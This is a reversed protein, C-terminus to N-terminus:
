GSLGWEKMYETKLDSTTFWSTGLAAENTLTLTQAIQPTFARNPLEGPAPKQGNLARLVQDFLQWGDWINSAGPDGVVPNGQELEQLGPLTANYTVVKVRSTAGASRISPLALPLEADFLVALLNVSPDSIATTTAPGVGTSWSSEPVDTSTVTCTGCLKKLEATFGSYEPASNTQDSSTIFVAHVTGLKAVAIQAMMQGADYYSASANGFVGAPEDGSPYGTDVDGGIVVPIHSAAAQAIAAHLAEANIGEIVIAAAGQSVAQSIQRNAVVSSAQADEGFVKMGFISAASKLGDEVQIVFPYQLGVAIFYITKGRLDATAHFSPGMPVWAIPQTAAAVLAQAEKQGSGAQV